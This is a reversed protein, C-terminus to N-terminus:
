VFLMHNIGFPFILFISVQVKWTKILMLKVRGYLNYVTGFEECKKFHKKYDMYTIHQLSINKIHIHVDTFIQM